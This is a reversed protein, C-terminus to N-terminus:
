FTSIGGILTPLHNHQCMCVLEALFSSKFDDQAPGYVAMLIWKFNDKRNNLHFKIFFEGEVILSLDLVAVNVGLLIGGSRGKPPLCHWVFDAGGSLRDLNTKSMEGKRTELLAVFDLKKGRVIDAVFRFKALDSLGRSNWFIGKM